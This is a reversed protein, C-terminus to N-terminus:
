DMTDVKGKTPHILFKINSKNRQEIVVGSKALIALSQIGRAVYVAM